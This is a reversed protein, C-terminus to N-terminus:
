GSLAGSPDLPLAGPRKQDLWVPIAMSPLPRCVLFGQLGDVGLSKVRDLTAPTEIGEAIVFLDRNKATSIIDAVLGHQAPDAVIIGDLKIIDFPLDTMRRWHPLNPGADDIATRFGAERWRELARSLAAYDPPDATEVVEIVIREPASGAIAVLKAARAVADPHLVAGLPLNVSIFLGPPCQLGRLELMTRAAGVGSLVREMGHGLAQPIFRGPHLIGRAPHHLRALSELGLPELDDASVVPQFRMRMMGGYLSAALQPPTLEPTAAAGPDAVFNMAALLAEADPSSVSLAANTSGEDGLLILFAPQQTVEDLLGALADLSRRPLGSSALVHSYPQRPKLLRAIAAQVGPVIELASHLQACASRAAESWAPGADVLLVHSEPPRAFATGAADDYAEALRNASKDPASGM